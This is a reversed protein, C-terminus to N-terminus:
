WYSSLGKPMADSATLRVRDTALVPAPPTALARPVGEDSVGEFRYARRCGDQLARGHPPVPSRRPAQFRNSAIISRLTDGERFLKAPRFKKM